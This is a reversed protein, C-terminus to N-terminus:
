FFLITSILTLEISRERGAERESVSLSSGHFDYIQLGKGKPSPNLSLDPNASM